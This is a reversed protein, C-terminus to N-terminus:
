STPLLDNLVGLLEDPRFPKRIIESAGLGKAMELMMPKGEANEVHGLGSMALILIDPFRDRVNRIVEIGDMHPMFIDTILVDPASADLRKELERGDSAVEVDYGDKLLIAQVTDRVLDDDDIVLVRTRATGADIM